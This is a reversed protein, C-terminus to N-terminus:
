NSDEPALLAEMKRLADQRWVPEGDPWYPGLLGAETSDVAPGLDDRTGMRMALLTEFDRRAAGAAAPDAKSSVKVAYAANVAAAMPDIPAEAATDAAAHAAAGAYAAIGAQGAGAVAKRAFAAARAASAYAAHAAEGAADAAGDVSCAFAETWRLALDLARAHEPNAGSWLGFLPQTRRGCRAAFAAVGRATLQSLEEVSVSLTESM